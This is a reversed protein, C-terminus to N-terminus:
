REVPAQKSKTERQAQALRATASSAPSKSPARSIAPFRLYRKYRRRKSFLTQAARRHLSRNGPFLIASSQRLTYELLARFPGNCCRKARELTRQSPKGSPKPAARILSCCSQPPSRPQVCRRQRLATNRRLSPSSYCTKRGTLFRVFLHFLLADQNTHKKDILHLASTCFLPQRRTNFSPSPCRQGSIFHPFM